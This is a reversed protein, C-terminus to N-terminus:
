GGAREMADLYRPIYYGILPVVNIQQGKDNTLIIERKEPEGEHKQAQYKKGEGVASARGIVDINCGKFDHIDDFEVFHYSFDITM